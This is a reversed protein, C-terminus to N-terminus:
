GGSNCAATIRSRRSRMWGSIRLWWTALLLALMGARFPAPGGIGHLLYTAYTYTIIAGFVRMGASHLMRWARPTLHRAGFRFSTLVMLVLLVYPGGGLVYVVPSALDQRFFSPYHIGLAVFSVAQWTMGLAYALGFYRRNSLMWRTWPGPWRRALPGAAFAVVFAPVSCRAVHATLAAMGAETSLNLWFMPMAVAVGMAAALMWYLRWGKLVPPHVPTLM